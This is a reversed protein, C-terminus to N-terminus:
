RGTVLGPALHSVDGVRVLLTHRPAGRVHRGRPWHWLETISAHGVAAETTWPADPAIGFAWRLIADIVGSHVCVIIRGAPSRGVLGDVVRDVRQQFEAMSEDGSRDEPRWLVLDERQDGHEWSWDPGFRYEDLDDVVEVTPGLCAATQRARQRSSSVLIDESTLAIAAVLAAAQECGRATLPGDQGTREQEGHRILVLCVRTRETAHAPETAM